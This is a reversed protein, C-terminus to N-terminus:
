VEIYIGPKGPMTYKAKGKPDYTPKLADEIQVKTNFIRELYGRLSLFVKLEVERKAARRPVKGELIERVMRVAEKGHKRIEPDSMVIKVLDKLRLKENELVIKCVKYKWPQAGVYLIIRKPKEIRTVKLIEKIDDITRFLADFALEVDVNIASKEVEPWRELSLISKMGLRSWLEECIHPILPCLLKLWRILVYRLTWYKENLSLDKAIDYYREVLTLLHFFAKQVYDRLKFGEIHNTAEEIISNIKSILWISAESLTAPQKVDKSNAIIDNAINWFDYLRSLVSLVEKERWDVISPLDAASVIYLRFLDASYKRPIEVLPLVNGKSKSMKAGERIVYENLTIARPWLNPPFIAVHHFIYFSLHNTIHGVATHRLDVPYWYLFEERMRRLVEKPIGSKESVEDISGKGLFVYDFVEPILQSPKINNERIIHIITYFAMYITSDSLSEIIWNPDFPLRTGLGRRRACPRLALWEFTNKFLKRYKEPYILIKDLAEFARKKWEPVAYNIFWQDKLIAVIVRGGCRCYIERPSTEYFIASVKLERLWEKVKEKVESVKCGAFQMCNENMVGNYFEDKYVIQTAQELKVHEWQSRINM